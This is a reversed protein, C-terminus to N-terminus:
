KADMVEVLEFKLRDIDKNAKDIGQSLSKEQNDLQELLIQKQDEIKDDLVEKINTAREDLKHIKDALDDRENMNNKFTEQNDLHRQNNIRHNDECIAFNERYEKKCANIQDQKHDLWGDVEKSRKKIRDELDIRWKELDDVKQELVRTAKDNEDLRYRVDSRRLQVNFLDHLQQLTFM